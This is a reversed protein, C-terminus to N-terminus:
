KSLIFITAHLIEMEGRTINTFIKRHSVNWSRHHGSDAHENNTM